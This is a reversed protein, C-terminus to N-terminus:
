LRQYEFSPYGKEGTEPDYFGIFRLKYYLGNKSRIFYNYNTQAKYYFDGSNIDGYLEKWDYGIADLNASYDLYLVDDLVVDDFVMTSDFAVLTGAENILVGTVLYPYPDGENTFLLTTYQTFLLDWDSREPEFDVEAKDTFSYQVYNYGSKKSINVDMPDSNDLNMYTFNYTNNQLSNFKIKKFGRHIGVDNIGRNLVWVLDTYPTDDESISIWNLLATSDPNGDSRDFKWDLGATDTVSEFDKFATEAAMMFTATNLKILTGTDSSAFSLDFDDKPNSSVQEEAALDFYVQYTYYQTMPIIEVAKDPKPNPPIPDDEKFCSSLVFLLSIIYILNIKM